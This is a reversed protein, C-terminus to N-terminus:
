NTGGNVRTKSRTKNETLGASSSNGGLQQSQSVINQERQLLASLTWQNRLQSAEAASIDKPVNVGYKRLTERADHRYQRRTRAPVDPFLREADREFEGPKSSASIEILILGMRNGLLKVGGALRSVSLRLFSVEVSLRKNQDPIRALQKDLTQVNTPNANPSVLERMVSISAKSFSVGMIDAFGSGLANNKQDPDEIQAPTETNCETAGLNELPLKQQNNDDSREKM